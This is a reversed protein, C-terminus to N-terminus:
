RSNTTCVSSTIPFTFVIVNSPGTEQGTGSVPGNPGQGFTGTYAGPVPNSLTLAPKLDTSGGHPAIQICFQFATDNPFAVAESASSQEIVPVDFESNQTAVKKSSSGGASAIAISAAAVIAAVGGILAFVVKKSRKERAPEQWGFNHGDDYHGTDQAAFEAEAAKDAAAQAAQEDIKAQKERARDQEVRDRQRQWEDRTDNLDDVVQQHKAPDRVKLQELFGDLRAKASQGSEIADTLYPKQGASAVRVM